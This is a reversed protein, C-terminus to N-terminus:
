VHLRINGVGKFVTLRGKEDFQAKIVMEGKDNVDEEGQFFKNTYYPFM